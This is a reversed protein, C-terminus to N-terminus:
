SIGWAESAKNIAAVIRTNLVEREKFCDDLNMEGIAARMTTQALQTIVDEPNEVGYSCKYPDVVRLYLIGNINLVVNDSTIAQQADIHIAQEKLVQEYAITDIFPIFFNLGSEALHHFKGLREIVYVTQQPIFNIVTNTRAKNRHHIPSTALSRASSSSLGRSLARFPLMKKQKPRTRSETLEVGM